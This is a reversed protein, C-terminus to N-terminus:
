FLLCSSTWLIIRYQFATSYRLLINVLLSMGKLVQVQEKVPKPVMNLKSKRLKSAWINKNRTHNNPKAGRRPGQAWTTTKEKGIMM